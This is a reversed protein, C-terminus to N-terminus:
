PTGLEAQFSIGEQEVKTAEEQLMRLEDGSFFGRLVLFGDRHFRDIDTQALM